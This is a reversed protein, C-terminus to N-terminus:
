RDAAIGDAGTGAKVIADTVGRMLAEGMRSRRLMFRAMPDTLALFARCKM